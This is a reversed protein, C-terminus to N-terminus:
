DLLQHSLSIAKQRLEDMTDMFAEIKEASQCPAFMQATALEYAENWRLWLALAERFRRESLADDIQMQLHEFVEPHMPLTMTKM